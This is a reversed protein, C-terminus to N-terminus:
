LTLYQLRNQVGTAVEIRFLSVPAASVVSMVGFFPMTGANGHSSNKVGAARTRQARILCLDSSVSSSISISAIAAGCAGSAFNNGGPAGSRCFLGQICDPGNQILFVHDRCQLSFHMKFVLFLNREAHFSNDLRAVSIASVYASFLGHGPDFGRVLFLLSEETSL